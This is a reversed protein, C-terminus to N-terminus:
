YWLNQKIKFIEHCQNWFIIRNVIILCICLVKKNCFKEPCIHKILFICPMAFHYINSKNLFIYHVFGWTFITLQRAAIMFLSVIFYPSIYETFQAVSRWEVLYLVFLYYSSRKHRFSEQLIFYLQCSSNLDLDLSNANWKSNINKPFAHTCWNKGKGYSFLYPWSNTKKFKSHYGISFLSFGSNSVATSRKSISITYYGPTLNSLYM